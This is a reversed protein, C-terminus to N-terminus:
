TLKIENSICHMMIYLSLQATMKDKFEPKNIILWSLRTKFGGGDSGIRDNKHTSM